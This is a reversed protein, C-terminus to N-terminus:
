EKIEEVVLRQTGYVLGTHMDAPNSLIAAEGIRVWTNDDQRQEIYVAIKHASTDANEIRVYKTM